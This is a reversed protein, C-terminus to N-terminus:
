TPKVPRFTRELQTCYDPESESGAWRCLLEYEDKGRLVFTIRGSYTEKPDRRDQPYVILYRRVSQGAVSTTGREKVSGGLRTALQAASADLEKTAAPFLSPKYPKLLPFTTVSVLEAAIPKPAASVENGLRKVHWDGPASFRFGDGRIIRPPSSSGSSGGGGCASLAALAALACAGAVILSLSRPYV